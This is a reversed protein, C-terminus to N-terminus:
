IMQEQISPHIFDAWILEQVTRNLTNWTQMSTNTLNEISGWIHIDRLNFDLGCLLNVTLVVSTDIALFQICVNTYFIYFIHNIKFPKFYLVM